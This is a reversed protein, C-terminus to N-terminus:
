TLIRGFIEFNVGTVGPQAESLFVPNPGATQQCGIGDTWPPDPYKFGPGTVVQIVLPEGAPADAIAYNVYINTFDNTHSIVTGVAVPTYTDEGGPPGATVTNATIQLVGGWESAPLPFPYFVDLNWQVVGSIGPPILLVDASIPISFLVPGATGAELFSVSAAYATKAASLGINFSVTAALVGPHVGNPTAIPGTGDAEGVIDWTLGSHPVDPEHVLGWLQVNVVAFVDAPDGDIRAFVNKGRVPITYVRGAAATAFGNLTLVPFSISGPLPLPPIKM